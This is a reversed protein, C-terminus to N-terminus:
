LSSRPKFVAQCFMNRYVFPSGVLEWGDKIYSMVVEEFEERPWSVLIKYM